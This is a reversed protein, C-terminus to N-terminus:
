TIISIILLFIIIGLIDLFVTWLPTRYMMDVTGRKRLTAGTFMGFLLGVSLCSIILGAYEGISIWTAVGGVGGVMGAITGLVKWTTGPTKSMGAGCGFSFGLLFAGIELLM